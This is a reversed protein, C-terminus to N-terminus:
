GTCAIAECPQNSELVDRVTSLLTKPDFPKQLLRRGEDALRGAEGTAPDYGSCFIAPVNPRMAVMRQYAARGNVKPMVVDLLVLDISDGHREFLGVAEAGDAATLTRYGGEHLARVALTRVVEDDEAILVTGTGRPPAMSGNQPHTPQDAEVTPLYVRFTTGAGPTSEVQLSGHHQQVIGYAMALGLGTGKGVEKTTFFPEFIRRQIDPPMGCGTDQVEVVAYRGPHVDAPVGRSTEFSVGSTRLLLRGGAPMADRANVCLNLLVQQFQGADAFVIGADNGLHVDLEICEGLIPRLMQVLERVADNPDVAARDLPQRRSFGLLQRTLVTAREAASLVQDLDQHRQEGPDLGAMAYQAYGRIAQLLNNFEHAVGGALAGISEMRQAQFLHTELRRKETIDTDIVLTARPQGADDRVLTWRSEVRVERGDKTLNRLEGSWENQKLVHERALELDATASHLALDRSRRGLVDAASWGYLREAGRNWFEIQDDKNLVFVADTAKDLLSAQTRIREEALALQRETCVQRLVRRVAEPLYDLYRDAKTVFDHVGARLANIITAQHGFGTVMIVPLDHGAEKLTVYYDLGTFAGSLQYDLVVLQVDGHAIAETAQEVTLAVAVRYGARELYKQHLRATAPDDDVVLIRGMSIDSM